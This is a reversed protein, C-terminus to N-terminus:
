FPLDDDDIPQMAQEKKEEPEIEHPPPVTGIWSKCLFEVDNKDFERGNYEKKDCTIVAMIYDGKKLGAVLKTLTFMGQITMYREKPDEAKNNIAVSAEACCYKNESGFYKVRADKIVMGSILFHNGNLKYIM